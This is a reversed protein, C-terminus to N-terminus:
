CFQVVYTASNQCTFTSSADDYAYSYATPCANKFQQAVASRHCKDPTGFEGRCCYEDTNYALCASKCAVTNGNLGKVALDAPCEDNMSRICGGARQCGDGGQPEILVPINYGDVLSVDYFDKGEHGNLTFEALSAPPVGGAGNCQESNKCFGTECNFNEDCGTRAWIRASKWSHDVDINRSQGGDLKFGGEAPNGPGLIGPWITFPCKNYITITRSEASVAFLLLYLNLKILAMLFVSM